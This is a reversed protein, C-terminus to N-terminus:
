RRATREAKTVPVERYLAELDILYQEQQAFVSEFTKPNTLNMYMFKRLLNQPTDNFGNRLLGTFRRAFDVPDKQYQAFYSQALLSAFVYNTYYTPANYFHPIQQWLRNTTPDLEHWISTKKGIEFTIKDLDEPTKVTGKDVAEFVAKEVAAIRVTGYVGMLQQLQQELYYVKLGPDAAERYLKDLLVLENLIAYSETFYRPGDSLAPPVKNNNQLASNVVHGGEHALTSVDDLYGQYGYSYFVSDFGPSPIAFANAVRNEGPVIDLRGNKPDLLSAMERTYEPGLYAVSDMILDRAETITFRPKEVGPPVMTMDYLHVTDFGTFEGIRDRQLTQFRKRLDGHALITDYANTVEAYSLHLGFYAAEQGNRFKRIQSLKNRTRAVNLFDFAFLDRQGEYAANEKEYHEKRVARVPSNNLQAADQRVDLAEGSEPDTVKGWPARDLLLDFMDEQWRTMLPATAALLEEEKLSLTHPKGRLAENIVHTYTKLRPEAKVFQQFKQPSIEQIENSVFALMPSYKADLDTARNRVSSNRTDIAYQLDLYWYARAFVTHIRDSLTLARYLNQPSAIVKGKLQQLDRVQADMAKLASDFAAPSAFFQELRFRYAAAESPPIPQFPTAAPTSAPADPPAVQARGTIPAVLAAAMAMLMWRRGRMMM